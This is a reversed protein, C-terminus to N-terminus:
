QIKQTLRKGLVQPLYKNIVISLYFTVWITATAYLVGWLIGSDLKYEKFGLIYVLFGTILPIVLLHTAFIVLTHKGITSLGCSCPILKALYSFVAIGSFAAIYFCFYKGYNGVFFEVESNIHTFFIYLPLTFIVAYWNLFWFNRNKVQFSFCYGVAYFVLGTLSVELNWILYIHYINTCIYGLISSLIIAAAFFIKRHRLKFLFYFYVQVVFLSSLFWLAGNFPQPSGSFISLFDRLPNFEEDKFHQFLFLWMFYSVIAFFIYPVILKKSLQRLVKGLQKQYFEEKLLLGSIFFFLPM